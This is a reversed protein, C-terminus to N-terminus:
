PFYDPKLKPIEGNKPVFWIEVNRTSNKYGGDVTSILTAPIGNKILRNRNEELMEKLLKPKDIKRFEFDDNKEKNDSQGGSYFNTGLYGILLIKSEPSKKLLKKLVKFYVESVAEDEGPIEYIIDTYLYPNEYYKSSFLFTEKQSSIENNCEPVVYNEPLLFIQAKIEKNNLDCNQVQIRESNFNMNAIFHAKM